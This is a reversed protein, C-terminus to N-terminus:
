YDTVDGKRSIVQFIREPMSGLLNQILEDPVHDWADIIAAELSGVNEFPNNRDYIKRVLYGWLNEIPNLDPSRAPWDLVSVSHDNFWNRTSGSVHIAANDQQFILNRRRRKSLFPLLNTELISQYEMSNMRFSPFSLRLTGDACFAGWVM